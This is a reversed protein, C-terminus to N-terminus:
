VTITLLEVLMLLVFLRRGCWSRSVLFFFFFFFRAHSLFLYFTSLNCIYVYIDFKTRVVRKQFLRWWTREFDLGTFPFGFGEEYNPSCRFFMCARYMFLKFASCIRKWGFRDCEPILGAVFIEHMIGSLFWNAIYFFVSIFFLQSFPTAFKSQCDQCNHLATFLCFM